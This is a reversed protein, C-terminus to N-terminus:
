HLALRQRHASPVIFGHLDLPQRVAVIKIAPYRSALIRHHRRGVRRLLVHVRGVVRGAESIKVGVARPVRDPAVAIAPPRISDPQTPRGEVAATPEHIRRIAPAKDAVLRPAPQGIVIAAPNKIGHKSPKPRRAKAKASEVSKHRETRHCSNEHAGLRSQQAQHRHM